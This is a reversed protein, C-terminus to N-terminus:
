MNCNLYINQFSNKMFLDIFMKLVVAIKVKHKKAKKIKLGRETKASSPVEAVSVFGSFISVLKGGSVINAEKPSCVM